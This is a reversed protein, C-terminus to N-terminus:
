CLSCLDFCCFLGLGSVGSLSLTFWLDFLYVGVLILILGFVMILQLAFDGFCFRVM